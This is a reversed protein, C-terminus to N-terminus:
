FIPDFFRSIKGALSSFGHLIKQRYEIVHLLKAVPNRDSEFWLLLRNFLVFPSIRDSRPVSSQFSVWNPQNLSRSASSWWAAYDDSASGITLLDLGSNKTQIPGCSKNQESRASFKSSCVKYSEQPMHKPHMELKTMKRIKQQWKGRFGFTSNLLNGFYNFM